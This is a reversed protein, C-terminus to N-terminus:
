ECVKLFGYVRLLQETLANEEGFPRVMGDDDVTFGCKFEYIKGVTYGNFDIQAVGTFVAKGTFFPVKEEEREWILSCYKEIEDLNKRSPLFKVQDYVKVIDDSQFFREIHLLNNDFAALPFFGDDRYLRDGVVVYRAGDRSEVVMMNKLDKKKM